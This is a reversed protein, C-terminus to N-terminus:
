LGIQSYNEHFGARYLCLYYQDGQNRNWYLLLRNWNFRFIRKALHVATTRPEIRFVELQVPLKYKQLFTVVTSHIFHVTSSDCVPEEIALFHGCAEIVKDLDTPIRSLGQAQMTDEDRIVVAEVLERLSLQRRAMTLWQFAEVAIDKSREKVIHELMRIYTEDLNRPLSRLTERIDEDNLQMGEVGVMLAHKIEEVMAPDQIRLRGDELRQKLSEDIYGEIEPRWKVDDLSISITNRLNRSLYVEKRSSLYVKICSSISLLKNLMEVIQAQIDDHCEDMGDLILYIYNPLSCTRIFLNQWQHTSPINNYQSFFKALYEEFEAPGHFVALIQKILSRIIEEFKLSRPDSFNCFFYGIFMKRSAITTQQLCTDLLYKVVSTSLVSKGSGPIGHCWLISSHCSQVWEKYEEMEYLWKGTSPHSSNFFELFTTTHNYDSIRELLRRREELKRQAEQKLELDITKKWQQLQREENRKVSAELRRRWQRNRVWEQLEIDKHDEWKKNFRAWEQLEVNTHQEWKNSFLIQQQRAKRATDERALIVQYEVIKQQFILKKEVDQLENGLPLLLARWIMSTSSRRLFALADTCFVVTKAYYEFVADQLGQYHPWLDQFETFIPCLMGLKELLETLCAFYRIYNHATLLLLKVSGWVLASIYTQHQIMTDVVRSFQQVSQLFAECRKINKESVRADQLAKTLDLIDTPTETQNLANREDLSLLKSFADVANILNEQGTPQQAQPGPQQAM